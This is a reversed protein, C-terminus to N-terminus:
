VDVEALRHAEDFYIVAKAIMCNRRTSQWQGIDSWGKDDPELETAPDDPSEVVHIVDVEPTSENM